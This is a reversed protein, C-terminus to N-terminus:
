REKSPRRARLLKGQQQWAAVVKKIRELGPAEPLHRKIQKALRTQGAGPTRQQFEQALVLAAGQWSDEAMRARGAGAKKGGHRGAETQLHRKLSESLEKGTGVAGEFYAAMFLKRLDDANDEPLKGLLTEFLDSVDSESFDEGFLFQGYARNIGPSALANTEDSAPANIVDLIAGLGGVNEKADRAILARLKSRTRKM